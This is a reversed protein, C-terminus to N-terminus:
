GANAITLIQQQYHPIGPHLDLFDRPSIINIGQFTQLVLLDKDGTVVYEANGALAAGIIQDDDPDRCVPQPLTQPIVVKM